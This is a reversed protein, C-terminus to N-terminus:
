GKVNTVRAKTAIIARMKLSSAIAMVENVRKWPVGTEAIIAVTAYEKNSAEANAKQIDREAVSIELQKQKELVAVAKEKEKRVTELQAQQREM